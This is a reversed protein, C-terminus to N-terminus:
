KSISPPLMPRSSATLFKQVFDQETKVTVFEGGTMECVHQLARIIENDAQESDSAGLIFIFDFVMGLEKMKPLLNKVNVAGYDCGDSVLVIHHANVESPRKKCENVARDVARYINTSGGGCDPLSNIGQIVELESVGSALLAPSDEFSFLLVRAEPYKQYRQHVFDKAADKVAMMKSRGRRTSNWNRELGIGSKNELGEMVIKTKLEDDTLTSPDEPAEDVDFVDDLEKSSDNEDLLSEKYEKLEKKYEKALWERYQELIEPRWNYQNVMEESLMGEGMSGSADIVYILKSFRDYMDALTAGSGVSLEAVTKEFEEQVQVSKKGTSVISVNGAVEFKKENAM